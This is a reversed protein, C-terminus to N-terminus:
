LKSNVLESLGRGMWGCSWRMLTYPKRFLSTKQYYFFGKKQNQMNDIAWNAIKEALEVYSKDFRSAKVFSIIGQASGHVDFPYTKDNAWKPAGDPLFLNEKYYKVGKLYQEMFSQDGSHDMYDLIADVIYGTHYNDHKRPHDGAPHTYYWAGYDTQKDVVFNVLKRAEKALDEDKLYKNVRAVISGTLISVDMVIWNIKESPVYSLCKMTDDEYLVKPAKLLFTLASESAQLYKENGTIEYADMMATTVFYTVVRNPLHAPAFFGVDQWPHQYGWCMGWETKSPNQLLWDLLLEAEALDKANGHAKYRNMYALSFLAIGKPNRTQPVFFLPRINVPARMVVQSYLLRLFKSGFSMFWLFKSDLADYKNYGKYDHSDAYALVKSLSQEIKEINQVM